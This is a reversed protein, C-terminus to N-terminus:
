PEPCSTPPGSLPMDSETGTSTRTSTRTQCGLAATNHGEILFSSLFSRDHTRSYSTDHRTLALSGYSIGDPLHGGATNYRRPARTSQGRVVTPDNTVSMLTLLEKATVSRHESIGCHWAERQSGRQVLLPGAKGQRGASNM